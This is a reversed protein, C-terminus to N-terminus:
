HGLSALLGSTSRGSGRSGLSVSVPDPALAIVKSAVQVRCARLSGIQSRLQGSGFSLDSSGPISKITLTLSSGRGLGTCGGNDLLHRRGRVTSGPSILPGAAHLDNDVFQAAFQSVHLPLFFGLVCDPSLTFKPVPREQM